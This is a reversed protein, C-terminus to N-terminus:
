QYESRKSRYTMTAKWYRYLSTVARKMAESKDHIASQVYSLASIKVDFNVDGTAVNVTYERGLLHASVNGISIVYESGKKVAMNDTTNTGIYACVTGTYGDKSTLYIEIATESDLVLAFSVDEIGSGEPVNCVIAYDKTDNSVTE